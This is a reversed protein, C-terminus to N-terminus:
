RVSVFDNESLPDNVGQLIALPENRFNILTNGNEQSVSLKQFSLGPKLGIVDEGVTFDTITDTGHETDFVFTDSGLGGFVLDDGKWGLLFDDGAGGSLTDDGAEGWLKDDGDGGLLVDDGGQGVLRDNGSEGEIFDDHRRGKLLDDGDSGLITDNGWGGDVSDNGAGVSITNASTDGIIEDDFGSGVVNEINSIQDTDGFGDQAQNEELNITVAGTTNDYIATDIGQGGNIIDAGAGGIILDDDENGYISDNGSSGLLSDNGLNGKILDDGEGGDIADDGPGGLLSDNGDNGQISDDGWEGLIADDGNGGRLTDNAEEDPLAFIIEDAGRISSDGLIVDDDDGGSVYDANGGGALIDSGFSGFVWDEGLDGSAIDNGTSSSIFDDNDGGSIMDDGDRGYLSDKGNGGDLFDNGSGGKLTDEGDEGMLYSSQTLDTPSNNIEIRDDDDGGGLVVSTVVGDLIITDDGEGAFGQIQTINTFNQSNVEIMENNAEGSLHQISVVENPNSGIVSDPGITLQLTGDAAQNAVKPIPLTFWIGVQDNGPTGDQKSEGEFYFHGTSSTLPPQGEVLNYHKDTLFLDGTVRDYLFHLAEENPLGNIDATDDKGGHGLRDDDIIKISVPIVPKNGSDFFGWDPFVGVGKDEDREKIQGTKYKQGDITIEGFFNARDKIRGGDLGDGDLTQLRNIVLSFDPSPVGYAYFDGGSKVVQRTESEFLQEDFFSNGIAGSSAGDIKRGLKSGEVAGVIAGIPGGLIGGLTFGLIGGSVKGITAKDCKLGGCFLGDPDAWVREGPFLSDLDNKFYRSPHFIPEGVNYNIPRIEPGSDLDYIGDQQSHLQTSSWSSHKDEEIYIKLAGEETTEVRETTVEFTDHERKVGIHGRTWVRDLTITVDQNTLDLDDEAIEWASAFQSIDGNHGGVLNLLYDPAGYDKTFAAVNLFTIYTSREGNEEVEVPTVRTFLAVKDQPNDFLSEDEDFVLTPRLSRVAINEWIDNLGDKDRDRDPDSTFIPIGDLRFATGLRGDLGKIVGRDAQKTNFLDM